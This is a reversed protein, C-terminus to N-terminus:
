RLSSANNVSRLLVTILAPINHNERNENTGIISILLEFKANTSVWSM